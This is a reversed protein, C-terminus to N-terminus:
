GLANGHDPIESRDFAVETRKGDHQSRLGAYIRWRCSVWPVVRGPFANLSRNEINSVELPM